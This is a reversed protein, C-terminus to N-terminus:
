ALLENANGLTAVFTVHGTGVKPCEMDFSEIAREIATTRRDELEARRAYEESETLVSSLSGSNRQLGNREFHLMPYVRCVLLDICPVVGGGLVIDSLRRCKLDGRNATFRKSPKVFGLRSGRAALRTANSSLILYVPSDPQMSDYSGDLPDIGDGAGILTASCVAIKTGTQIISKEVKCKLHEDLIAKVGYWGDTLEIMLSKSGSPKSSSTTSLEGMTHIKSVCLIMTTTSSVDKNLVKRISSRMGCRVEKEYRYKLKGILRQFSLQKGGAEFPFRREISALKWIIWRSHNLLWRDSLAEADISYRSLALRMADAGGIGDSSVQDALFYAPLGTNRHFRLNTANTSNVDMTTSHVGFVHCIRRSNNLGQIQHPAAVSLDAVYHISSLTEGSPTLLSDRIDDGQIDIISDIGRSRQVCTDGHGVNWEFETTVIGNMSLSVRGDNSESQWNLKSYKQRLGSELSIAVNGFPVLPRTETSWGIPPSARREVDVGFRVTPSKCTMEEQVIHNEINNMKESLVIPNSAACPYSIQCPLNPISPGNEASPLITMEAAAPFTDPDPVPCPISDVLSPPALDRLIHTANALSDESIAIPMGRGATSFCVPAEDLTTSSVDRRTTALTPPVGYADVITESRSHTSSSVYLGRGNTSASLSDVSLVNTESTGETIFGIPASETGVLSPSSSGSLVKVRKSPRGGFADTGNERRSACIGNQSSPNVNNGCSPTVVSMSNTADSICEGSVAGALGRVATSSDLCIHNEDDISTSYSCELETKTTRLICNTASIAREKHAPGADLGSISICYISSAPASGHLLNAAKTLSEESIAINAGKGATSFGGHTHNTSKMRTSTAGGHVASGKALDSEFTLRVKATDVSGFCAASSSGLDNTSTTTLGVLIKSAKAVSDESIAIAVSKGATSFGSLACNTYVLSTSSSGDHMEVSDLPRGNFAATSNEKRPARTAAPLSPKGDDRCTPTVASMSDTTDALSEFPRNVNDLSTLCVGGLKRKATRSTGNFASMAMVQARSSDPDSTSICNISSASASSRLLNTAKTLSEESISITAGRGATRFGNHARNTAEIRTSSSGGDVTNDIAMDGEFTVRAKGIGPTGFCVVSPPDFDNMSIPALGDLTKTAKALSDDSIAITVRKGATRFGIHACNQNELSTLSSRCPMEVSQSPRGADKERCLARLGTQPAHKFDDGCTPTVASMSDTANALSIGSVAVTVDRGATSSSLCPRNIDDLDTSCLDGTKLVSAFAPTAIEKRAPDSDPYSTSIINTSSAPASGRLLNTAKTLSEESISITAGKGATSFGSHARQVGKMGTSSSGGNVTNVKAVDSEFTVRAKGMGPTDFYDVSSHDFDHISTPVSGDLVKTAKALSDESIVITDRKGATCFGIRPGTRREMWPHPPSEMAAVDTSSARKTGPIAAGTWATCAGVFLAGANDDTARAVFPTAPTSSYSESIAIAKRERMRETCGPFADFYEGEVRSADTTLDKTLCKSLGIAAVNQASKGAEVSIPRSKRSSNVGGNFDIQLSSHGDDPVNSGPDRHPSTDHVAGRIIPITPLSFDLNRTSESPASEVDDFPGKSGGQSSSFSLRFLSEEDNQCIREESAAIRAFTRALAHGPPTSTRSIGSVLEIQSLQTQSAYVFCSDNQSTFPSFNSCINENLCGAELDVDRISAEPQQGIRPLSCDVYNMSRCESVQDFLFESKIASALNPGDVETKSVLSEIPVKPLEPAGLSIRCLEPKTASLSKWGSTGMLRVDVLIEHDQM